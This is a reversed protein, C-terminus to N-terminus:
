SLGPLCQDTEIESKDWFGACVNPESCRWPQRASSFSQQMMRCETVVPGLELSDTGWSGAETRQGSQTPSAQMAILGCCPMLLAFVWSRPPTPPPPTPPRLPARPEPTPAPGAASVAVTFGLRSWTPDPAVPVAALCCVALRVPSDARLPAARSVLCALCVFLCSVFGNLCNASIQESM